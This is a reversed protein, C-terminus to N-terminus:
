LLYILLSNEGGCKIKLNMVIVKMALVYGYNLYKSYINFIIKNIPSVEKELDLMKYFVQGFNSGM